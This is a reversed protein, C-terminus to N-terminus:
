AQDGVSSTAVLLKSKECATVCLNCQTCSFMHRKLSRPKLQMPCAHDCDNDCDKCQNSRSKDFWIRLGRRNAMWALSQFLGFACGFRCFLHRALLFELSLIFSAAILFVQKAFTLQFNWVQSYVEQPNIIYTLLVLAWTFGMLLVLPVLVFWWLRNKKIELQNLQSESLSKKLWISMKGSAKLMLRNFTEVLSFHPCLWGCYIRGFRYFLYFGFILLSVVPLLGYVLLNVALQGSSLAEGIGISWHFGLLYFHGQDLDFRFLNFLPAVCFLVFFSIQTISRIIQKQLSM